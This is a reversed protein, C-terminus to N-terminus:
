IYNDQWPVKGASTVFYSKLKDRTQRAAMSSNCPRGPQLPLMAGLGDLRWTGEVFRHEGDESDTLAPPAYTDSQIECLYNHLCVCALAVKQVKDASLMITTLLVRWRNALLGFGNEVVRRGRSLRYNFVRQQYDVQHLSYPKMMMEDDDGLFVFPAQIDSGPLPKAAPINLLAQKFDTEAFVGADSAKGQAGVSVYLFQYKADVLAMMLVSFQGKYNRFTSGSHAPPLINIHKGDLAGLCNPFQWMQHFDQAIELWEEETNPTKLYDEAFAEYLAECTERVIKSITSKGVRFQFNLSTFSEGTALFRLTLVLRDKASISLRMNTDQKTIFPAVKNLVFQLEERNM